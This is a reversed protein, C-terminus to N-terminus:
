NSENKLFRQTFIEKIKQEQTVLAKQLLDRQKGRELKLFGEIGETNGKRMWATIYSIKDGDIMNKLDKFLKAVEYEPHRTSYAYAVKSALLEIAPSVEQTEQTSPNSKEGVITETLLAIKFKQLGSVVEEIAETIRHKDM